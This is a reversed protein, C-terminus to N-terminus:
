EHHPTEIRFHDTLIGQRFGAAAFRPQERSGVTVPERQRAHITM